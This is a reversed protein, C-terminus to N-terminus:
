RGANSGIGEKSALPQTPAAWVDRQFGTLQTGCERLAGDFNGAEYFAGWRSDDGAQWDLGDPGDGRPCVIECPACLIQAGMPLIMHDSTVLKKKVHNVKALVGKGILGPDFLEYDLVAVDVRGTLNNEDAGDPDVVALEHSPRHVFKVQQSKLGNERAITMYLDAIYAGRHATNAVIESAPLYRAATLLPLASGLGVFLWRADNGLVSHKRRKGDKDTAGMLEGVVDRVAQVYAEVPSARQDVLNLLEDAHQVESQRELFLAIAQAQQSDSYDVRSPAPKADIRWERTTPDWIPHQTKAGRNDHRYIVDMDFKPEFPPPPPEKYGLMAKLQRQEMKSSSYYKDGLIIRNPDNAALQLEEEEDEEEKQQQMLSDFKSYDTTHKKVLKDQQQQNRIDRAKQTWTVLDKNSPEKELGKEFMELAEQYYEMELAARGARFYGKSWSRNEKIAKTAEVLAETYRGLQFQCASRNSYIKYKEPVDSLDKAKRSAFSVMEPSCDALKAEKVLGEVNGEKGLKTIRKLKDDLSEKDEESESSSGSSDEKAMAIAETSPRVRPRRKRFFSVFFLCSASTTNAFKSLFGTYEKKGKTLNGLVKKRALDEPGGSQSSIKDAQGKGTRTMEKRKSSDSPSAVTGWGDLEPARERRRWKALSGRVRWASRRKTRAKMEVRLSRQRTTLQGPRAAMAAGWLKFARPKDVETRLKKHCLPCSGGKKSWARSRLTKVICLLHFCHQCNAMQVTHELLRRAKRMRCAGATSTQFGRLRKFGSITCCPLRDLAAARWAEPWRLPPAEGDCLGCACVQVAPVETEAEDDGNRAAVIKGTFTELETRFLRGFIAEVVDWEGPEVSLADFVSQVVEYKPNAATLDPIRGNQILQQGFCLIRFAFYCNKAASYLDKGKGDMRRHAKLWTYEAYSAVSEELVDLPLTLNRVRPDDIELLVFHKPTSICTLMTLDMAELRRLWFDREYVSVECRGLVFQAEKSGSAIVQKAEDVIALLDLDKPQKNSFITSGHIYLGVCRGWNEEIETLVARLEEDHVPCGSRAEPRPLLASTQPGLQSSGAAQAQSRESTAIVALRRERAARQMDKLEEAFREMLNGELGPGLTQNALAASKSKVAQLRAFPVQQQVQSDVQPQAAPIQQVQPQAAPIQQVAQTKAGEQPQAAPIQQVAQTKVGEQPQAAPIQQVAQTKAGEQSQPVPVQQPMQTVQAVKSAVGQATSSKHSRQELEMMYCERLTDITDSAKVAASLVGQFCQCYNGVTADTKAQRLRHSRLCHGFALDAVADSSLFDEMAASCAHAFSMTECFSSRNFDDRMQALALMEGLLGCTEKSQLHKRCVSVSSEETVHGSTNAKDVIEACKNATFVQIDASNEFILAHAGVLVALATCKTSM